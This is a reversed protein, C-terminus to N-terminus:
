PPTLCPWRDRRARSRGSFTDCNAVPQVCLRQM